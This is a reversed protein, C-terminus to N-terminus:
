SELGSEFDRIIAQCYVDYSSRDDRDGEWYAVTFIIGHLQCKMVLAENVQEVLGELSRSQLIDFIM